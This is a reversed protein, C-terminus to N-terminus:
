ARDMPPNELGLDRQSKAARRTAKAWPYGARKGLISPPMYGASGTAVARNSPTKGKAVVFSTSCRASHGM